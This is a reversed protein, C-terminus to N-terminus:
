SISSVIISSTPCAGGKPGANDGQQNLEGTVTVWSGMPPHSAPLNRLYYYQQVNNTYGNDIPVLLDTCGNGDMYLYGSCQVTNNGTVSYPGSSYCGFNYYGPPAVYPSCGYVNCYGYYGAPSKTNTITTVSTIIQTGTNMTTSTSHLTQTNTVLQQQTLTTVHPTVTSYGAVLLSFVTLIILAIAIPKPLSKGAKSSASAHPNNTQPQSM